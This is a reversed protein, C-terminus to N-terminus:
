DQRRLTRLEEKELTTLGSENAKTALEELRRQQADSVIRALCDALEKIAASEGVLMEEALLSQLHPGESRDRFKEVLGAPSIDPKEAAISLLTVLLPVGREHISEIEPPPVVEASISPFNLIM